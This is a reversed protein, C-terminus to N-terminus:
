KAQFSTFNEVPPMPYDFGAQQNHYYEATATIANKFLETLMYELHQQLPFVHM